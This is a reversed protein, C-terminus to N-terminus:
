NIILFLILNSNFCAVKQYLLKNQNEIKGFLIRSKIFILTKRQKIFKKLM